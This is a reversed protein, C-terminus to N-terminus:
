INEKKGLAIVNMEPDFNACCQMEKILHIRFWEQGCAVILNRIDAEYM